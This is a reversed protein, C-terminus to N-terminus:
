WYIYNLVGNNKRNSNRLELAGADLKKGILFPAEESLCLLGLGCSLINKKAFKLGNGRKEPARGTIVKSFAINVYNTDEETLTYVSSLSQKIGRGRDCIICFTKERIFLCGAESQWFGLNHDFCNNGIEGLSSTVLYLCDESFVDKLNAEYSALRGNFDARTKCFNEIIYQSSKENFYWDQIENLKTFAM